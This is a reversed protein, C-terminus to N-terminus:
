SAAKRKKGAGAGGAAGALEKPNAGPALLRMAVELEVIRRADSLQKPRGLTDDLARIVRAGAARSSADASADPRLLTGLAIRDLAARGGSLPIPGAGGGGGGSLKGLRVERWVRGSGRGDTVTFPFDADKYREKVRREYKSAGVYDDAGAAAASRSMLEAKAAGTTNAAQVVCALLQGVGMQEPLDDLELFFPGPASGGLQAGDADGGVRELVVRVRVTVEGEFDHRLVLGDRRYKGGGFTQRRVWDLALLDRSAKDKQHDRIAGLLRALTSPALTSVQRVDLHFFKHAHKDAAAASEKPAKLTGKAVNRPRDVILAAALRDFGEATIPCGNLALAELMPWTQSVTAGLSGEGHVGTQGLYLRRLSPFLRAAAEVGGDQILPNGSLALDLTGLLPAGSASAARSLEADSIGNRMLCLRAGQSPSPGVEIPAWADKHSTAFAPIRALAAFLRTIAPGSFRCDCLSLDSLRTLCALTDPLREAPSASGSSDGSSGGLAENEDLNLARIQRLNEPTDSALRRLVDSWESPSLSAAVLSLVGAHVALSSSLSAAASEM